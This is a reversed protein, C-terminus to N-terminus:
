KTAVADSPRAKRELNDWEVKGAKVEQIALTTTKHAPSEVRSDAGRQLEKSRKAAVIVLRYASDLKETKVFNEPM